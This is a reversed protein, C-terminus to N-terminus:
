LVISKNWEIGNLDMFKQGASDLTEDLGKMKM